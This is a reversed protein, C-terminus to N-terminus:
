QQDKMGLPMPKALLAKSCPADTLSEYITILVSAVDKPLFLFWIDMHHEELRRHKWVHAKKAVNPHDLAMIANIKEMLVELLGNDTLDVGLSALVRTGDTYNVRGQVFGDSELLGFFFM